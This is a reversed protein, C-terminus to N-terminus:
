GKFPVEAIGCVGPRCAFLGGAHPQSAGDKAPDFGVRATTLYLTELNPGGFMVSTVRGAPVSIEREVTGDPAHRVVKWGEWRASWLFGEADVTLGDPAGAGPEDPVVVFARKNEIDGTSADFDYAWITRAGTDCYYMISNDPSWGLGNSITIGTVMRTVSLDTDMRYLAGVPGRDTKAMTGAWIRGQRDTAADNFRNNPKDAEPDTIPKRGSEPHWAYFGSEQALVFGGSERELVAGVSEAVEYTATAGSAPDLRHIRKGIIDVWYLAQERVSWVPGEGLENRADVVLEVNSM